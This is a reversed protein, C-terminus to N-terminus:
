VIYPNFQLEANCHPCHHGFLKPNDWDEYRKNHPIEKLHPKVENNLEIKGGCMPCIASPSEQQKTELNWRRVFTTVAPINVNLYDAAKYMSVECSTNVTMLGKACAQQHTTIGRYAKQEIQHSHVNYLLITYDTLTIYIHHEDLAPVVWLVNDLLHEFSPNRLWDKLYLKNDKDLYYHFRGTSSCALIIKDCSTTRCKCINLDFHYLLDNEKDCSLVADIPTCIVLYDKSLTLYCSEQFYRYGSYPLRNADDIIEREEMLDYVAYKQGDLLLLFRNNNSIYLSNRNYEWGWEKIFLIEGSNNLVYLYLPDPDSVYNGTIALIFNSDTSSVIDTCGTQWQPLDIKIISDNRKADSIVLQSPNGLISAVVINGNPSIASSYIGSLPNDSDPTWAFMQQSSYRLAETKIGNIFPGGFVIGVSVCIENGDNSCCAHNIYGNQYTESIYYNGAETPFDFVRLDKTSLAKTFSSNICCLQEDKYFHGAKRENELEDVQWYHGTDDIFQQGDETYAFVPSQNGYSYSYKNRDGEKYHRIYLTVRPTRCCCREDSCAVITAGSAELPNYPEGNENKIEIPFSCGNDSKKDYRHLCGDDFLVWFYLGSPTMKAIRVKDLYGFYQHNYYISAKGNDGCIFSLGDASLSMWGKEGTNENVLIKNEKIDHVYCDTATRIACLSITRDCIMELIPTNWTYSKSLKSNVLNDIKVQKGYTSATTTGDESLCPNDGIEKAIYLTSQKNSYDSLVNEMCTKYFLNKELSTRISSERPLNCFFLIVQEETVPNKISNLYNRYINLQHNPFNFYLLQAKDYDEILSIPFFQKKKAIYDWDVILLRTLEERVKDFTLYIGNTIPQCNAVMYYSYALEKLSHKDSKNYYQKYRNSLLEWYHLYSSKDKIFYDKIIQKFGNHFITNVQGVETIRSRLIAKLDNSLRIWLIAPIRHIGNEIFLHKSNQKISNYVSDDNSLLALIETDSLGIRDIALLSLVTRVILEGHKTPQSLDTIIAYLLNEISSPIYNLPKGSPVDLLYQSLLYIFLPSKDSAIICQRVEGKQEKSITRNHIRLQDYLMLEADMGMNQLIHAHKNSDSVTDCGLSSIVIKVNPNNGATAWFCLTFDKYNEIYVQDIADIILLIPRNFKMQRIMPFLSEPTKEYPTNDWGIYYGQYIRHSEVDLDDRGKFEEWISKVVSIADSSEETTGCFRCIIDYHENYEEVIKALLSSKGIGSPGKIWLPKTEPSVIYQKILLLEKERGVFHRAKNLAYEIHRENETQIEENFNNIVNDIVSMIRCQMKKKFSDRYDATSLFHYDLDKNDIINKESLIAHLSNRLAELKEQNEVEEEFYDYLVENPVTRKNIDRIYALVHEKADRVSLAGQRIEQETASLGYLSENHLRNANRSFMVGLPKVVQNEWVEKKCSEGTRGQLVYEGEPLANNDLKYWVNFLDSEQKTMELSDFDSKRITEPLPLWGYRNGLLIIFNPKPSMKMCQALEKKCIRMTRNDLGAEESIGWRLDVTEVQWGKERYFPILEDFVEQLLNRELEMDKFTSSVFFRIYKSRMNKFNIQWPSLRGGHDCSKNVIPVNFRM